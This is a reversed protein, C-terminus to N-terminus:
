LARAAWPRHLACREEVVPADCLVGRDVASDMIEQTSM